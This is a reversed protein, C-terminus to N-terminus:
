VENALLQESAASVIRLGFLEEFQTLYCREVESMDPMASPSLLDELKTVSRNSEVIGCPVIESFLQLSNSVNLAIGHYSVRGSIRVGIACIKAAGVWIGPYQPDLQASISYQALTALVTELLQEVFQKPRLRLETLPLIPYVVFQGPEHATVEGGRDTQYIAIDRAAFWSEHRKIFEPDAHKGLTLCSPHEVTILAADMEGRRVKGHLLKQIRLCQDYPCLGLHFHQVSSIKKDSM